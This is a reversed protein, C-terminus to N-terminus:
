GILKFHRAMAKVDKRSFRKNPYGHLVLEEGNIYATIEKNSFEYESIDFPQKKDCKDCHFKKFVGHKCEHKSLDCM